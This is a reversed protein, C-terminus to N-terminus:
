NMSVPYLIFQTITYNDFLARYYLQVNDFPSYIEITHWGPEVAVWPPVYDLQEGDFKLLPMAGCGVCNMALAPVFSFQTSKTRRASFFTRGDLNLYDNGVEIAVSDGGSLYVPLGRVWMSAGIVDIYHWGPSIGEALFRSLGPRVAVRRSGSLDFDVYIGTDFVFVTKTTDYAGLEYSSPVKYLGVSASPKLLACSCLAVAFLFLM